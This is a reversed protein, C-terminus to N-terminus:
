KAVNQSFQCCIDSELTYNTRNFYKFFLKVAFFVLFLSKSGFSWFDSFKRPAKGGWEWECSHGWVGAAAQEAASCERDSGEGGLNEAGGGCSFDSFGDILIIM